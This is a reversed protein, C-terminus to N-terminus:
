VVVFHTKVNSRRNLSIWCRISLHDYLSNQLIHSTKNTSSLLIVVHCNNHHPLNLLNIIM